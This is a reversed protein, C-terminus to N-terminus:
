TRLLAGRGLLMTTSYALAGVDLLPRAELATLFAVGCCIPRWGFALSGILGFALALAISSGLPKTCSTTELTALRAIPQTHPTRTWM